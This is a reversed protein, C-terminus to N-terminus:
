RRVRPNFYGYSVDVLLNVVLVAITTVVVVGQVLPLDRSFVSDVALSGVGAIGFVKEIIAAGGVLIGLQTGLVTVVPIAANKLAHKGAIRAEGYGRARAARVYDEQLADLMAARLQRVLEPTTALSLAMAPLLLHRLWEVPDDTVAVYGIAPLWGLKLAFVYVLMLGIWFSPVAVGLGMVAQIVRDPWGNHHLAATIGLVISSLTALVMSLGLLSATAPVRQMIVTTVAQRTHLSRGLDGSVANRLWDVYQEGLPRDTGLLERIEAIREATPSDGALTVAPDGPVIFLLGFVAFSVILLTVPVFAIRKALYSSM